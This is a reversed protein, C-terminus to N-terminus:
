PPPPPAAPRQPEFVRDQGRRAQAAADRAQRYFVEQARINKRKGVAAPREYVGAATLRRGQVNDALCTELMGILRARAAADEVPVLLEVRRDLNRSMWDASSIFVQPEGGNHFYLIRAHELFRDVMGTVTINESLGAVGPRLCCIGRINLQVTVGAQSAEVLADMMVTDVLSNLKLMIRAPQGQKKREIENQILELLRERLTLPASEIKRYRSPQAYGTITNFFQSVDAGLDENCTLLSVDSYLRATKENYNGTGLHLYRRIGTAERRVILCAKAHVKLGRLGYIVQVGARELAAAWGINRAEDFRAKLEVVATVHKDKEAARALAAVIPSNESTRYLIQKIALVHPDDAAETLLRVVPEFSDYPQVLLLDKRAIADFMPEQPAIDPSPQPPWDAEQQDPFGPLAAIRFYMALDVPGPVPFLDRDHLGLAMKLFALSEADIAQSVELRICASQRRETLVEKMGALLDGALDERISLDANRTLRFPVSATITQGPFLRALHASVVDELLVYQYGQAAPLTLFRPLAKPLVVVAYRPLGDTGPAPPLRVFLNLSLGPLLPFVEEPDIAMPTIVPFIEHEFLREVYAAQEPSLQALGLRQLGAAALKPELEKLLCDYQAAVMAHMATGIADLQEGASLGAPDKETAGQAALQQLGGVRVMCFEDLNSGTIALFKLRSLLPRDPNRAEDLVRQNFRLWSLERNFYLHTKKGM